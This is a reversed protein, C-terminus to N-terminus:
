PELAMGKAPTDGFVELRRLGLLRIFTAFIAEINQPQQQQSQIAKITLKNKIAQTTVVITGCSWPHLKLFWPMDIFTMNRVLINSDLPLTPPKPVNEVTLPEKQWPYFM